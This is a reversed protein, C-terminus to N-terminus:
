KADTASDELHRGRSVYLQAGNTNGAGHLAIMEPRLLYDGDAICEPIAIVQKGSNKIVKETGWVGGNYGDEAIKFRKM